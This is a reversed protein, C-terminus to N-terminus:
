FIDNIKKGYLENLSIQILTLMTILEDNYDHKKQFDRLYGNYKKILNNLEYDTHTLKKKPKQVSQTFEKYNVLRELEDM